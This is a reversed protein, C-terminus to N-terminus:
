GGIIWHASAAEGIEGAQLRPRLGPAANNSLLSAIDYLVAEAEAFYGHGLLTLDINTVEITDINPVITLAIRPEARRAGKAAGALRRIGFFQGRCPQLVIAKVRGREAGRRPRRQRGPAVVVRRHDARGHRSGKSRPKKSIPM